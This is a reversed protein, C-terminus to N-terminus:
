LEDFVIINPEWVAANIEMGEYLNHREIIYRPFKLEFDHPKPSGNISFTMLCYEPLTFLTKIKGSFVNRKLSEKVKEDKKIVKIDQQRLCFCVKKKPPFRKSIFISFNETKIETGSERDETIGEFINRYNLFRAVSAANPRDFIENKPGSQLLEGNILVSLREGMTYAEELNHTIHFATIGVDNIMQKMEMWLNRKAGEDISSFPEDLLIMAPQIALARAISVKQREGGSLFQIKRKKLHNINLTSCLKDVIADDNAQTNKRVRLGFRINSEVDLHPFLSYNQPVYGMNRMEPLEKSIDRENFLITGSNPKHFGLISKMLSSKGSGTPGLLVHYEGRACSLNIDKLSFSGLNLNLADIKLYANTM